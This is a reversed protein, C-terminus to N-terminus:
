KIEIKKPEIKPTPTAKKLNITLVGNEFKADISEKDINDGVSFSRCFASCKRESYTIKGKKDKEEKNERKEGKISLIGDDIEINIKDKTLGPVDATIIVENENEQLDIKPYSGRSFFGSDFSPFLEDFCDDFISSFPMLFEDRDFFSPLSKSYKVLKNNM